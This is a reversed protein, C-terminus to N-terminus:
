IFSNRLWQFHWCFKVRGIAFLSRRVTKLNQQKWSSWLLKFVPEEAKLFVAQREIKKKAHQKLHNCSYNCNMHFNKFTEDNCSKFFMKLFNNLSICQIIKPQNFFQWDYFCIVWRECFVRELLNKSFSVADITKKFVYLSRFFLEVIKGSISLFLVLFTRNGQCRQIIKWGTFKSFFMFFPFISLTKSSTIMWRFM